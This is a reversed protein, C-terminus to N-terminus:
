FMKFIKEPDILDYDATYFRMDDKIQVCVVRDMDYLKGLPTEKPAYATVSESIRYEEGAYRFCNETDVMCYSIRADKGCEKKIERLKRTKECEVIRKGKKVPLLEQPFRDSASHDEGPSHLMSGTGYVMDEIHSPCSSIPIERKGNMMEKYNTM